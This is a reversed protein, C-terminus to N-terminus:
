LAVTTEKNTATDLCVKGTYAKRLDATNFASCSIIQQTSTFFHWTKDPTQYFHQASSGIGAEGNDEVGGAGLVLTAYGATQSAVTKTTDGGMVVPTDTISAPLLTYFPGLSKANDTIHSMDKCGVQVLHAGTPNNLTKTVTVRCIVDQHTYNTIVMTDDIGTQIIKEAFGLEKLTKAITATEISSQNYAVSKKAAATPSTSVYFDYGAVKVPQLPMENDNTYGSAIQVLINKADLTSTKKTSGTDDSTNASSAPSPMAQKEFYAKYVVLTAIGGLTAMIVALVLVLLPRSRRKTREQALARTTDALTNDRAADDLSHDNDVRGTLQNTPTVGGAQGINTSPNEISQLKEQDNRM